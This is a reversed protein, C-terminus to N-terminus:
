LRQICGNKIKGSQHSQSWCYRCLYVWRELTHVTGTCLSTRMSNQPLLNKKIYRRSLLASCAGYVVYM